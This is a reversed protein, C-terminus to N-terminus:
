QDIGTFTTVPDVQVNLRWEMEDIMRNEAEAVAGSQAPDFIKKVKLAVYSKIMSLEAIDSTFDSWEASEDEITFPVSPGVGLQYLIQFVSNIHDIIQDDFATYEPAMGNLKKKVSNLISEDM